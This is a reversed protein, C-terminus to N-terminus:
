NEITQTLQAKQAENTEQNWQFINLEIFIFAVLWLFADWFDIFDGKIGWYAAALFLIFYLVAKVSKSILMVRGTLKGRHQLMVDIELILVILLWNGSNIVETLSLRQAEILGNSDSLIQTGVIQLLPTGSLAQCSENSLPLYEDLDALYTFSSDVLGCINEFSVPNVTHIMIYKSIYGYFSYVIFLYCIARVGHLTWKVKGTIRDDDLIYTELEFLLLLVVWAATDITATFAEIIQSVAIGNAFTQDSAAYDEVFFHYINMALLCYVAYKFFQFLFESNIGSTDPKTMTTM